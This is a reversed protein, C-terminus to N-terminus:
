GCKTKNIRPLILFVIVMVTIAMTFSLLPSVGLGAPIYGCVLAIVAVFISYPMQTRVHQIHNCRSAISSIITTDSIPSCHDGFIAGDLVAGLTIVTILGYTNGDLAFAIPVATPIIIAMTGWSTGTAFSTLSAIFFVIAPFILPPVNGSLLNTLYLGTSLSDCCNKLSWAFILILCPLISKKIGSMICKIITGIRLARSFYACLAALALSFMSAYILILISNETEGIVQRWYQWHFISFFSTLKAPGGGDIWLGTIHFSILGALPLIANFMNAPRKDDTSKTQAPTDTDEPPNKKAEDQAKKMPGFDCGFLIHGFVFALMLISYFRFALSDFFMSYGDREIGVTKATDNFLGVEYVIWTSIVALSTIPASTADVLFALKERSIRFRDTVPRMSSGVIVANSYDDIFYILGMLATGFQATKKTKILPLLKQLIAKFGGSVIVIEVMAFLLPVFAIIQLNVINLHDIITNGENTGDIIIVTSVPYLVATKLGEFIASLSTPDSPLTTLLGGVIISVAISLIVNRTLFALMIAMLPPIISYWPAAQTDATQPPASLAALACIAAFIVASAATKALIKRKV